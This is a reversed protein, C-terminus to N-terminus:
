LRLSRNALAGILWVEIFVALMHFLGKPTGAFNRDIWVQVAFFAILSVLCLVLFLIDILRASIPEENESVAGKLTYVPRFTARHLVEALPRKKLFGRVQHEAFCVFLDDPRACTRAAQEVTQGLILQTQVVVRSDRIMAALTTLDIQNHFENAVQCPRIMLLVQRCDPAALHWIRRPLNFLDTNTDPLIVVLRKSLPLPEDETFIQLATERQNVKTQKFPWVTPLSVGELKMGLMRHNASHFLSSM